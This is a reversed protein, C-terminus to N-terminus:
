TLRFYYLSVVTIVYLMLTRYSADSLEKYRRMRNAFFRREDLSEANDRSFEADSMESLEIIFISLRRLISLVLWITLLALAFDSHIFASLTDVVNHLFESM